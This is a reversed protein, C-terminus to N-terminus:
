SMKEEYHEKKLEYWRLHENLNKDYFDETYELGIKLLVRHSAENGLATIGNVTNLRLTEFAYELAKISAETAYGKGWFRPMLRYGIDYFDTTNNYIEGNTYFRLGTWGIFSGTAKEITAWRGIGRETYQTLIDEIYAKSQEIKKLPENGLYRHVLPDSDLRFMDELDSLCIERLLLRKTEIEFAIDSM